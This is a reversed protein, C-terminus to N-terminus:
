LPVDVGVTESAGLVAGLDMDAPFQAVYSTGDGRIAIIERRPADGEGCEDILVADFRYGNAV